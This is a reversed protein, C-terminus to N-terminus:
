LDLFLSHVSGSNLALDFSALMHGVNNSFRNRAALLNLLWILIGAASTVAAVTIYFKGNERWVGHDDSTSVVGVCLSPWASNAQTAHNFVLVTYGRITVWGLVFWARHAPFTSILVLM